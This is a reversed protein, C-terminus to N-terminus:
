DLFAVGEGDQRATLEGIVFAQEGSDLLSQVATQREAWPVIAVMGIGANFVRRMEETSIQGQEQLWQFLAPTQWTQPDIRAALNEPLSRPLNEVLGGGTIHALAHVTVTKRLSQIAKVYIRTPRLLLDVLPEGNIQVHAHAGSRVLIQRILSYGNSHAGSSAIGIVADGERCAGGTLIESKEVIGVAFGALDYHGAPYMGPMEATEGGLLACGSQRCGEAIGAIVTEALTKDLQGCAYYDLFWLPEAGSVLIDNVCMAVLDVGIGGHQNAELALLLKTGVGDTGSVLVPERYGAPLAFLGGFGGIGGLVGARYTSQALPKIRDVLANGADINVGASRYTLPDLADM